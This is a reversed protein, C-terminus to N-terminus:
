HNQTTSICTYRYVKITYLSFLAICEGISVRVNLNVGVTSFNTLLSTGRPLYLASACSTTDILNAQAPCIPMSRSPTVCTDMIQVGIRDGQNVPQQLETLNGCGQTANPAISNININRSNIVQYVGNTERLLGVRLRFLSTDMLRNLFACTEAFVLIGNCPITEPM